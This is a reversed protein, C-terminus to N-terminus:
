ASRSRPCRSRKRRLFPLTPPNLALPKAQVPRLDVRALRHSRRELQLALPRTALGPRLRRDVHCLQRRSPYLRGPRHLTLWVSVKVLNGSAASVKARNPEQLPTCATRTATTAPARGPRRGGRCGLRQRRWSLSQRTARTGPKDCEYQAAIRKESSGKNAEGMTTTM